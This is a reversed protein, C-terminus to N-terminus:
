NSPPPDSRSDPKDGSEGGPSQPTTLSPLDHAGDDPKGDPPPPTSGPAVLGGSFIMKTADELSLSSDIVRENEIILVFGSMPNPATPVFISTVDKGSDKDFFQGTVFGLLRCGPAPYEIFAVRKFSSPAGISHFADIVQKLSKYVFGVFPVRLLVKDFWSLVRRGIVHTAFGGLFILLALLILLGVINVEVPGINLVFTEETFADPEGMLGTIYNLGAATLSVLPNSINQLFRIVVSLIWFTAVLPIAFAVGALLKNRLRTLAPHWTRHKLHLLARKFFRRRHGSKEPPPEQGNPPAPM